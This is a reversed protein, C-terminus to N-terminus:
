ALSIRIRDGDATPATLCDYGAQQMLACADDFNAAIDRSSHADSGITCSVGAARFAELLDLTPYMEHVDKRLGATNVEVMCGAKAAARAMELYYERMDFSPMWGYKKPLDPHAFAMIPGPHAAMDLWATFYRRWVEDVGADNWISLDRSDDIPLMDVFHVSGLVYEFPKCLKELQATRGTLWDAEIGCVLQMASKQERLLERQEHLQAVYVRMSDESMSTEFLPDMGAPLVLHETQAFLLLGLEQARAVMQAVTGKGHGSFASHSHCDIRPCAAMM